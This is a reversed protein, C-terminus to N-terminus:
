VFFFLVCMVYWMFSSVKFNTKIFKKKTNPVNPMGTLPDYGYAKIVGRMLELEIPNLCHVLTNKDVRPFPISLSLDQISLSVVIKQLIQKLEEISNRAQLRVDEKNSNQPEMALKVARVLKNYMARTEGFVNGFMTLQNILEYLESPDSQIPTASMFFSVKRNPLSDHLTATLLNQKGHNQCEDSVMFRTKNNIDKFTLDKDKLMECFSHHDILLPYCTTSQACRFLFCM